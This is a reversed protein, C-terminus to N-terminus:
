GSRGDRSALRRAPVQLAGCRHVRGAEVRNRVKAVRSHDQPRSAAAYGTV